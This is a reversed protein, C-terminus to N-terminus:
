VYMCVYMCVRMCGCVCAYICVACDRKGAQSREDARNGATVCTINSYYGHGRKQLVPVDKARGSNGHTLLLENVSGRISGRNRRNVNEKSKGSDNDYKSKMEDNSDNRNNSSDNIKEISTKEKEKWRGLDSSCM